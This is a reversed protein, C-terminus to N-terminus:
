RCRRARHDRVRAAGCQKCGLRATDQLEADNGDVQIRGPMVSGRVNLFSFVGSTTGIAAVTSAVSDAAADALPVAASTAVAVGAAAPGEHSHIRQDIVQLKGGVQLSNAADFEHVAAVIQTRCAISARSPPPETIPLAPSGPLLLAALLCPEPLALCAGCRGM